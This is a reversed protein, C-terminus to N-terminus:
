YPGIQFEPAPAYEPCWAFGGVTPDKDFCSVHVHGYGAYAYKPIFISVTFTGTKWTCWVAGGVSKTVLAMGFPVGLDDTLVVAFLAPYFQVAHTQYNVTVKVYEEHVYYFKDTTVSTIYVLREYYFPMTDIILVDAVTATASIVWVGTIMDPNECPWPMRFTITAVGDVGTTATFKAWIKYYVPRPVLTGNPLKDFPGEIEFGVDKSQVPWYNYTVLTYLTIESQPFVIDMWHNAGQGGFPAPFPDPYGTWYGRNDAGGTLDIVRGPMDFPLMTYLGDHPTDFPIYDGDKNIGYEGFVDGIILGCTFADPCEQKIAKFRITALIGQGNPFPDQDWEGIGNPLLLDGVLVHPGLGDSEVSSVFFTGYLNWVPNIMFPGETVSVVELLTDDYFLRFQVGILTWGQDLYLPAPGTIKVGVDFETGISPAPGLTITPPVVELWPLEMTRLPHITITASESAAAPIVGIHDFFFVDSYTLPSVDDPAPAVGQKMITFTVTAVAVNGGPAAVHTAAVALTGPPETVTTVLVFGNQAVIDTAPNVISIITSDYTVVFNATTLFWADSLGKIVLDETFTTGLVTPPDPGFELTGPTFGMHPSAPAKWTVTYTDDNKTCVIELGGDDLLYTDATNIHLQSTLFGLKPPLVKVVFEVIAVAGSGTVPPQTPPTPFLSLSLLIKGKGVLHQYNGDPPTPLASTTKPTFINPSPVFWRTFNIVADDFDMYLQVGALNVVNNVNVTVNFKMGVFATDTDYNIPNPVIDVTTPVAYANPFIAFTGLLLIAIISVSLLKTKM